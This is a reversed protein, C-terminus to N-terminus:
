IANLGISNIIFVTMKNANSIDKVKNGRGRILDCKKVTAHIQKCQSFGLCKIKNFYTFEQNFPLLDTLMDPVKFCSNLRSYYVCIDTLYCCCVIWIGLTDPGTIFGFSNLPCYYDDYPDILEDGM